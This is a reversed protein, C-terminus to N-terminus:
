GEGLDGMVSGGSRRGQRVGCRRLVCCAACVVGREQTAWKGTRSRVTKMGIERALGHGAKALTTIQYRALCQNRRPARVPQRSVSPSTLEEWGAHSRAWFGMMESPGCM